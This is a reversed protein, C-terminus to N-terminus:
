KFNLLRYKGRVSNQIENIANMYDAMTANKNATVVSFIRTSASGSVSERRLAKIALDNLTPSNIDVLNAVRSGADWYYNANSSDVIRQGVGLRSTISGTFGVTVNLASIRGETMDMAGSVHLIPIDESSISLGSLAMDNVWLNDATFNSVKAVDALSLLSSVNINKADGSLTGSVIATQTKYENNINTRNQFIVDGVVLKNTDLTEQLSLGGTNVFAANKIDRGGLSLASMMTADLANDSPIRWLYLANDRNVATTQVIGSSLDVGLDLTNVRWTNFGGYARNGDIFGIKDDGMSVIERTRMPTITADNLVVVGQLASQGSVDGSKLIRLQYRDSASQVFESDLGYDILDSLKVRIINRGVTTLFRNKNEVIYHELVTQVKQMERTIRVNEARTVARLQFSYIFPMLMGALAITLLFEILVTGRTANKDSFIKWEIKM